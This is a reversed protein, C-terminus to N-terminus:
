RRIIFGYYDMIWAMPLQPNIRCNGWVQVHAALGVQHCAGPERQVGSVSRTRGPVEGVDLAGGGHLAGSM